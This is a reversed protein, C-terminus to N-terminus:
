SKKFEDSKEKLYTRASPADFFYKVAAVSDEGEDIILRYKKRGESGSQLEKYETVIIDSYFFVKYLNSLDIGLLKFGNCKMLVAFDGKKNKAKEIKMKDVPVIDIYNIHGLRVPQNDVFSACLEKLLEKDSDILPLDIEFQEKTNYHDKIKKELKAIRGWYSIIEDMDDNLSISSFDGELIDGFLQKGNINITKNYFSKQLELTHLIKEVTKAANLHTTINVRYGDDQIDEKRLNIELLKDDDSNFVINYGLSNDIRNIIYEGEGIMAIASENLHFTKSENMDGIGRLCM